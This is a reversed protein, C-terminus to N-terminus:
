SFRVNFRRLLKKFNRLKWLMSTKQNYWSKKLRVFVAKRVASDTFLKLVLRFSNKVDSIMNRKTVKYLITLGLSFLVLSLFLDGSHTQKLPEMFLKILGIYILSLALIKGRLHFHTAVAWVNLLALSTLVAELIQVPFRPNLFGVMNVSFFLNSPVGINCSGLFCGLNSFILGGLFGVSAIDGLQWFDIKRARALFYLTLWGGLFAGWFSFGPYKNILVIGVLNQAFASLNEMVFYLRAGILGGLFTLLTLDLVKEEDLDWARSLRWILFVGVLFGIALFIGFSSVSITGISFLVPLM